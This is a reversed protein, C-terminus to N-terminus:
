EGSVAVAESGTRTGMGPTASALLPAGSMDDAASEGVAPGGVGRESLM